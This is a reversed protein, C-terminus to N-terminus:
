IAGLAKLLIRLLRRCVRGDYVLVDDDSSKEYDDKERFNFAVLRLAFIKVGEFPNDMAKDEIEIVWLDPDHQGTRQSIPM